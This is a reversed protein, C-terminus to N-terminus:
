SFLREIQDLYKNRDLFRMVMALGWGGWMVWTIYTDWHRLPHVEAEEGEQWPTDSMKPVFITLYLTVFFAASGISFPILFWLNTM